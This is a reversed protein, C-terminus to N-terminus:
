TKQKNQDNQSIAMKLENQMRCQYILWKYTNKHHKTMTNKTYILQVEIKIFIQSLLIPIQFNASDVDIIPQIPWALLPTM